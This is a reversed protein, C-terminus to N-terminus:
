NGSKKARGLGIQKALESRKKAYDPAVMPYTTPLKWKKRYDEPSLDYKARLHRKLSKFKLGDELCIIYEAFISDDIPVVPVGPLASTAASTELCASLAEHTSNILKPLELASVINNGVFATVINVTLDLHKDNDDMFTRKM